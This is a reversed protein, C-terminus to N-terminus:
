SAWTWTMNYLRGVSLSALQGFASPSFDLDTENCGTCRDVVMVIVSKGEDSICISSSLLSPPSPSTFICYSVTLRSIAAVFPTLIPTGAKTAGVLIAKSGFFFGLRCSYLFERTIIM